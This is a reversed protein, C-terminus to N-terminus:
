RNSSRCPGGGGVLLPLWGVVGASLRSGPGISAGHSPSAGYSQSVHPFLTFRRLANDVLGVLDGRPLLPVARMDGRPAAGTMRRGIRLQGPHAVTAPGRQYRRQLDHRRELQGDYECSGTAGTIDNGSHLRPPM